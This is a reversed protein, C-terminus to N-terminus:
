SKLKIRLRLSLLYLGFSMASLGAIATWINQSEQVGTTALAPDPPVVPNQAAKAAAVVQALTSQNAGYYVAINQIGSTINPGSYLSVLSSGNYGMEYVNLETSFYIKQTSHSVFMSSPAGGVTSPSPTITTLVGAQTMSSWAGPSPNVAALFVQQTAPDVGVGDCSTLAGAKLVAPTSVTTGTITSKWVNGTGWTCFYLNSNYPDVWSGWAVDKIADSITTGAVAGSVALYVDTGDSSISYIDGANTTIYFREAFYDAALSTVKPNGPIAVTTITGATLAIDSILVKGFLPDGSVATKSSWAIRTETVGVSDVKSGSEQWFVTKPLQTQGINGVYIAGDTVETFFLVGEAGGQQAPNPVAHAPASVAFVLIGAFLFTIVASFAQQAKKM